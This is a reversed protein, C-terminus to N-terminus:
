KPRRLQAARSSATSPVLLRPRRSKKTRVIMPSAVHPPKLLPVVRWRELLGLVVGLLVISRVDHFPMTALGTVMVGIVMSLVVLGQPGRLSYAVLANRLIAIVFALLAVVGVIGTEVLASLVENHAFTGVILTCAGPGLGLLISYWEANVYHYLLINFLTLRGSFLQAAEASGGDVAPYVYRGPDSLFVAIDDFQAYDEHGFFISVASLATAAGVLTLLAGRANTRLLHFFVGAAWGSVLGLTVTRYANFWLAVHCWAFLILLAARVIRSRVPGCLLLASAVIGLLFISALESEHWYTGVYSCPGVNCKPGYLVGAILQNLLAYLVAGLCVWCVVSVGHVRVTLVVFSAWLWLYVWKFGVDMFGIYYGSLMTSVVHVIVLLPLTWGRVLTRLQGRAALWVTFIVMFAASHMETVSMGQFSAVHSVKPLSDLVFRSLVHAGFITIPWRWGTVLMAVTVFVLLSVSEISDFM